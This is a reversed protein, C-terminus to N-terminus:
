HVADFGKPGFEIVVDIPEPEHAALSTREPDNWSALKVVQGTEAGNEDPLAPEVILLGSGDLFFTHEGFLKNLEPVAPHGEPIARAEFQSLTREVLIPTLKM